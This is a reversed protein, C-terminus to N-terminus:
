ITINYSPHSKFKQFYRMSENQNKKIEEFEKVVKTCDDVFKEDDNASDNQDKLETNLKNNERHLENVAEIYSTRTLIDLHVAFIHKIKQLMKNKIYYLEHRAVGEYVHTDTSAECKNKINKYIRMINVVNKKSKELNVSLQEINLIQEVDLNASDSEDAELKARKLPAEDQSSTNAHSSM